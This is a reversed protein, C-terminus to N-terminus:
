NQNLNATKQFETPTLAYAERFCQTFYSPSEFGVKFAVEAVSLGTSLLVAARQLRYQKIYENPSVNLVSKLKRNLTSRSMSLFDALIDIDLMPDAMHEDVFGNLKALFVDDVKPPPSGPSVVLLETQLHERIRQQQLLQNHIRLELEHVHFPKTLYDDAGAELGKEKSEQASKATLMIFNVHATRLDNKTLQCLEYGNMGPMMVDSIVIEPLEAQIIEWALEGNPAELVQWKERLSAVIFDRLEVNDEVILLLPLESSNIAEISEPTFEDEEKLVPSTEVFKSIPIRLTFVTGERPKSEVAITGGMLETLEKVLALGIGTGEQERTSSDDVQYFRDFLKPLADAPIGIGTDKVKLLM